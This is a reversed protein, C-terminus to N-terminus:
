MEQIGRMVVQRIIPAQHFKNKSNLIHKAQSQSIHVAENIQRGLCTQFNNTVEMSFNQVTGYHVLNCHKWLPNETDRRILGDMHEMGRSYANRGTEGEYVAYEENVNCTDCIIQYGVSNKECNGKEVTSCCFCEKRKCKIDRM